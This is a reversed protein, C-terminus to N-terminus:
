DDREKLKGNSSIPEFEAINAPKGRTGALHYIKRGQLKEKLDQIATPTRIEKMHFRQTVEFVYSHAIGMTGRNILKAYFCDDDQILELDPRERSLAEPDTIEDKSEIRVFTADPRLLDISVILEALPGLTFGSGHSSTNFFIRGHNSCRIRGVGCVSECTRPSGGEIADQEIKEMTEAGSTQWSNGSGKTFERFVCARIGLMLKALLRCIERTHIFGQAGKDVSAYVLFGHVPCDLCDMLKRSEHWFFLEKLVSHFWDDLEAEAVDGEVLTERMRQVRQRQSDRLWPHDEGFESELDITRIFMCVMRGLVNGYDDMSKEEQFSDFVGGDRDSKRHRM